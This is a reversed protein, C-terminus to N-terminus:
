QLIRDMPETDEPNFLSLLTLTGKLMDYYTLNNVIMGNCLLEVILSHPLTPGVALLVIANMTLAMAIGISTDTISALTILNTVKILSLQVSDAEFNETSQNTISDADTMVKQMAEAIGTDLINSLHYNFLIKKNPLILSDLEIAVSQLDKKISNAISEKLKTYDEERIDIAKFIDKETHNM